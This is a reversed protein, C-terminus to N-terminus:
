GAAEAASERGTVLGKLWVWAAKLGRVIRGDLIEAVGLERALLEERGKGRPPFRVVVPERLVGSVILAPSLFGRRLAVPRPLAVERRPFVLWPRWTFRWGNADGEIRGYSRVPPGALGGGSFAALPAGLSRGSAFLLDHGFVSGYVFLRFSWGSVLAAVTLILLGFLAGFYPNVATSGAAVALAGFRFLRLLTDLIASPSLAILVQITHFALFVLIFALLAIAGAGLEALPRLVLPLAGGGTLAAVGASALAPAAAGAATTADAGEGFAGAVLRHAEILVIPSALLASAQNEYHEVFDMPKKLGPVLGAISTNAAFLFALALGTGWFAPRAYWPLAARFPEPTHWWRWAGLGSVGVLPSIPVGTVMAVAEALRQGADLQVRAGDDRAALAPTAGALVLAFAFPAVRLAGIRVM